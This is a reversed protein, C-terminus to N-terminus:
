RVWGKRRLRDFLISEVSEASSISLFRGNRQRCLESLERELSLRHEQYMGLLDGASSIDLTQGSESDVLQVDGALDPHIESPGLIQLGFLELGASALRSLPKHLDGWTLFDSLIIAV